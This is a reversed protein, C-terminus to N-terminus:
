RMLQKIQNRLTRLNKDVEATEIKKMTWETYMTITQFPIAGVVPALKLFGSSFTRLNRLWEEKKTTDKNIIRLAIFRVATFILTQLASVILIPAALIGIIQFVINFADVLMAGFLLLIYPRKWGTSKKVLAAEKKRLPALRAEIDMLNAANVAQAMNIQAVQDQYAANQRNRLDAAM